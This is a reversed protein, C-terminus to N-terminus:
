QLKRLKIKSEEQNGNSFTKKYNALKVLNNNSKCSKVNFYALKKKLFM